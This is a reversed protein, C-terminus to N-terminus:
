AKGLMAELEGSEDLQALIDSGGVFEGHVFVQPITPWSSFEKVAERVDEDLLVDVHHIAVGRKRLIATANASFGCRPADPNGKMFLVVPHGKVQAEIWEKSAANGRPSSPEPDEEVPPRARPLPPGPPREGSIVKLKKGIRSLLGM